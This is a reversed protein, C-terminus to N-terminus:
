SRYIEFTKKIMTDISFVTTIKTRLAEGLRRRLAADAELRLLADAIAADSGRTVLLGTEETDIIEPIGGVNTAVVPLSAYGAEMLAYGLSETRSPFLFIDFAKLYTAAGKVQGLLFVRETLNHKSIRETLAVRETGEGMIAMYTDPITSAIRAFADIAEFVGKSKHLEGVMGIFFGNDIHPFLTHRADERKLFVPEDRGLLTVVLKRQVFPMWGADRRTAESNCLTKHALLVTVYHILAIIGKQWKPRDENFAWGHATFIITPIRRLRCALAGLAGAKSSNLHVIDPREDKLIQILSGFSAADATAQVDRTMGPIAITRIHLARLRQEMEGPTGYAVAVDFGAAKAASALDFVYRQAGGWNAKTIIYLIKM